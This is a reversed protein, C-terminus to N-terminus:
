AFRAQQPLAAETPLELEERAIVTWIDRLAWEGGGPQLGGWPGHFMHSSHKHDVSSASNALRITTTESVCWGM